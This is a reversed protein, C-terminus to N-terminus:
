SIVFEQEELGMSLAEGEMLGHVYCDGVYRYKGPCNEDRSLVFPTQGGYLVCVLDGEKVDWTATGILGTKTRVIRTGNCSMHVLDNFLPEPRQGDDSRGHALADLMEPVTGSMAALWPQFLTKSMEASPVDGNENRNKVLTRWFAEVSSIDGLPYKEKAPLTSIPEPESVPENELAEMLSPTLFNRLRTRSDRAGSYRRRSWKSASQIEAMRSPEGKEETSAASKKDNRGNTNKQLAKARKVEGATYFKKNGVILAANVWDSLFSKGGFMMSQMESGVRTVEDVMVGKLMIHVDNEFYPTGHRTQNKTNLATLQPKTDGAAHYEWHERGEKSGLTRVSDKMWLDPVFSPWGDKVENHILHLADLTEHYITSNLTLNLFFTLPSLSYDFYAQIFEREPPNSIPPWLAFVRDLPNASTFDQRHDDLHLMHDYKLDMRTQGHVICEANLSSEWRLQHMCWAADAFFSWPRLASGYLFYVKKSLSVEPWNWVREFWPHSFVKSLEVRNDIPIRLRKHGICLQDLSSLDLEDQELRERFNDNRCAEHLMDVAEFVKRRSKEIGGLHAVTVAATSFKDKSLRLHSEHEQADAQNICVSDAWVTSFIKRDDLNRINVLAFLRNGLPLEQPDAHFMITELPEDDRAAPLILLLRIMKPYRIPGYEFKPINTVEREIRYEWTSTCVLTNENTEDLKPPSPSRSVNKKNPPLPPSSTRRAREKGFLPQLSLKKKLVQLTGNERGLM